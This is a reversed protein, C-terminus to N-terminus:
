INLSAGPSIRARKNGPGIDKIAGGRSGKGQHNAETLFRDRRPRADHAPATAGDFFKLNAPARARPPEWAETRGRLGPEPPGGTVRCFGQPM